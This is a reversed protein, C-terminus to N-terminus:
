KKATKKFNEISVDIQNALDDLTKENFRLELFDNYARSNNGYVMNFDDCKSCIKKFVKLNTVDKQYKSFDNTIATDACYQCIGQGLVYCDGDCEYIFPRLKFLDDIKINM